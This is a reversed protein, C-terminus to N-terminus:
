ELIMDIGSQLTDADIMGSARAVLNGSADVFYTVPISYAEYAIAASTSSDFYVPFSYGANQIFDKASDTTEQVNDTMNVMMFAVEGEYTKAAEDFDPLEAKCPPCWSAWFNIVVPTGKFDSLSVEKGEWDLVTFDPAPDYQPPESSQSSPEKESEDSSIEELRDPSYEDKLNNYLYTAGLFLLLLALIAIIWLFPKKM